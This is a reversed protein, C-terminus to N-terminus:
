VHARGIKPPCIFISEPPFKREENLPYHLLFSSLRTMALQLILDGPIETPKKIDKIGFLKGTTELSNMDFEELLRVKLKKLDATMKLFKELIPHFTADGKEVRAVFINRFINAPMESSFASYVIVPTIRKKIIKKIANWGTRDFSGGGLNLDVIMLDPIYGSRVKENFNRISEFISPRYDIAVSQSIQECYDKIQQQISKEDEIITIEIKEMNNKVSPCNSIFFLEVM